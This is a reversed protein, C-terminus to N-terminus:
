VAIRLTVRTGAEVVKFRRLGEYPRNGMRDAASIAIGFSTQRSGTPVPLVGGSTQLPRSMRYPDVDYFGSGV